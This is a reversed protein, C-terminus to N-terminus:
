KSPQGYEKKDQKRKEVSTVRSVDKTPLVSGIASIGSVSMSSQGLFGHNINCANGSGHSRNGRMM